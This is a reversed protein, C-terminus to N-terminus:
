LSLMLIKTVAWAVNNSLGISKCGRYCADEVAGTFHDIYDLVKAFGAYGGMMTKYKTPINNWATKLIKVAWSVKGRAQITTEGDKIPNGEKDYPVGNILYIGSLKIDSTAQTYNSNITDSNPEIASAFSLSTNAFLLTSLSLVMIIKSKM